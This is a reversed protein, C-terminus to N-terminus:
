WEKYNHNFKKIFNGKDLPKVNVIGVEGLIQDITAQDNAQRAVRLADRQADSLAFSDKNHRWHDTIEKNAWGQRMVKKANTSKEVDKAERQKYLHATRFAQFDEESTVIDALPTNSILAKFSQYDDNKLAQNIEQKSEHTLQRLKSLKQNDVGAQLLIDRAKKTEGKARLEKAQEFAEIQDGSFGAKNLKDVDLYAYASSATVAFAALAILLSKSYMVKSKVLLKKM